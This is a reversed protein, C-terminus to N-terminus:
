RNRRAPHNRVLFSSLELDDGLAGYVGFRVHRMRNGRGLDVRSTKLRGETGYIAHGYIEDDDNITFFELGDPVKGVVYAEFPTVFGDDKAYTGSQLFVKIKQGNDLSGGLKFVGQDSFAYTDNGITAFSNFDFQTYSSVMGSELATAWVTMAEETYRASSRAVARSEATVSFVGIAAASGTVIATSAGEQDTVKGATAAGTVVGASAGTQDVVRGASATGTVTASSTPATIPFSNVLTVSGSLTASGTPTLNITPM